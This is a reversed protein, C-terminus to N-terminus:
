SIGAVEMLKKYNYGKSIWKCVKCHKYGKTYITTLETYRHGKRCYIHYPMSRALNEANNVPELHEPNACPRNRCLHDLMKNEPFEGYTYFYALRHASLTKNQYSTIGYGDANRAGTWILCDGRSELRSWFFEQRLTPTTYEVRMQYVVQVNTKRKM